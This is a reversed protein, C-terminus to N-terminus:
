AAQKRPGRKRISMIRVAELVDMMHEGSVVRDAYSPSQGIELSPIKKSRLINIFEVSAESVVACHFDNNHIAAVAGDGEAITVKTHLRVEMVMRLQTAQFENTCCLLIHKRPRM